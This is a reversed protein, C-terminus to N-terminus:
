LTSKFKCFLQKICVLLEKSFTLNLIEQELESVHFILGHEYFIFFMFSDFQSKKTCIKYSLMRFNLWTRLLLLLWLCALLLLTVSSTHLLMCFNFWTWLPLVWLFALMNMYSIAVSKTHMLMHFNYINMSSCGVLIYSRFTISSSAVSKSLLLM